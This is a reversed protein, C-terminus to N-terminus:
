LKNRKRTHVMRQVPTLGVPEEILKAIEAEIQWIEERVEEVTDIKEISSWSETATELLHTM